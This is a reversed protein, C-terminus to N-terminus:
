FGIKIGATWMKADVSETSNGANGVADGSIVHYGVHIDFFPGFDIGYSLFFQKLDAEQFADTGPNTDLDGTGVGVGVVVGIVPITVFLDFFQM